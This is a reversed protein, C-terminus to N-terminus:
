DANAASNSNNWTRGRGAAEYELNVSMWCWPLCVLRQCLPTFLHLWGSFSFPSALSCLPWNNWLESWSSSWRLRTRSSNLCSLGLLWTRLTAEGVFVDRQESVGAEHKSETKKHIGSQLVVKISTSFLRTHGFLHCTELGVRFSDM